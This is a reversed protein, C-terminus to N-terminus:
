LRGRDEVGRDDEQERDGDEEEHADRRPRDTLDRRELARAKREPGDDADRHDRSEERGDQRRDDRIERGDRRVPEAEIRVVVADRDHRARHVEEAGRRQDRRDHEESHARMASSSGRFTLSSKISAFSAESSITSRAYAATNKLP